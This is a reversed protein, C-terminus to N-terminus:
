VLGSAVLVAGVMAAAYLPWVAFRVLASLVDRIGVPRPQLSWTDLSNAGAQREYLERFARELALYYADLLGFVVLVGCSIWAIEVNGNVKALAALGTVLSVAWAKLLFSNGALRTIVAQILKLQEPDGVAVLRAYSVRGRWALADSHAGLPRTPWM